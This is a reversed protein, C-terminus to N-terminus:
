GTCLHQMSRLGGSRGQELDLRTRLLAPVPVFPQGDPQAAPNIPHAVWHEFVPGHAAGGMEDGLARLQKAIADFKDLWERASASPGPATPMANALGQVSELLAAARSGCDRMRKHINDSSAM